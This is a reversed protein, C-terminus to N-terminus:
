KCPYNSIIIRRSYQASSALPSQKEAAAASHPGALTAPVWTAGPSVVRKV